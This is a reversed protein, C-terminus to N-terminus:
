HRALWRQVEEVPRSNVVLERPLLAKRAMAVGYKVDDLGATEHADPNVSVPTGCKRLEPGWRWDIDLRAPNANIEIAVDHSAAEAIIKEMDVEYGKRGLLLRGTAHGLFRTFPNRVAQLIRQTMTERDM